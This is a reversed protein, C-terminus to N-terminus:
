NAHAMNFNKLVKQKFMCGKKGIQYAFYEKRVGALIYDYLLYCDM